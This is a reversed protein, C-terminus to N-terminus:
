RKPPPRPVFHSEDHLEQISGDDDIVYMSTRTLLVKIEAGERIKIPVSSVGIYSLDSQTIPYRYLSRMEDTWVRGLRAPVFASPNPREDVLNSCGSEKALARARNVEAPSIKLQGRLTRQSKELARTTLRECRVPEWVEGTDIDVLLGHLHITGPAPDAWVIEFMAGNNPPIPPPELSFSPPHRTETSLAALALREAEPLTLRRQGAAALDALMVVM